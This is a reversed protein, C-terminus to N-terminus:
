RFTVPAGASGGAAGPGGVTSQEASVPGAPYDQEGQDGDDDSDSYQEKRPRKSGLMALQLKAADTDARSPPGPLTGSLALKAQMM